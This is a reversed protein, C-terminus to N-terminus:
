AVRRLGPILLKAKKPLDPDYHILMEDQSYFLVWDKMESADFTRFHPM